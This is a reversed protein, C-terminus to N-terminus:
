FNFTQGKQVFGLFGDKKADPLHHGSYHYLWIKKRVNDPLKCLDSYTTHVCSKASTTDCDHFIIDSDRYYDEFLDPTFQTDTTILIKKQNVTFYIGYSPLLKHDHYVHITKILYFTINEWEFTADNRIPYIEFFTEISCKTNEITELGGSLVQNWLRNRMSPHIILKPKSPTECFMRSLALWELGGVHDAHFHSVFVADIDESNIKQSSLAHRADTGCDILLKKGGNTEFIMNSQFNEDIPVFASGSGLFILKMYDTENRQHKKILLM